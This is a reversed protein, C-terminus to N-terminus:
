RTEVDRNDGLPRAPPCPVVEAANPSDSLKDLHGGACLYTMCIFFTCIVVACATDGNM